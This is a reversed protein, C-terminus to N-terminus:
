VVRRYARMIESAADRPEDKSAWGVYRVRLDGVQEEVVSDAGDQIAVAKTIIAQEIDAPLTRGTSTSGKETSWLSSGTSIGDATYGAVYDVMWAPYEQGPLPRVVLWSESAVSWDFGTPRRIVGAGRDVSFSSSALVDADDTSTTDWVALVARVPQRALLLSRTGYGAVVERYKQARLPYGVFQEAWATAAAITATLQAEDGTSTTGLAVRAASPTTLVETSAVTVEILPV